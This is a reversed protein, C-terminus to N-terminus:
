ELSGNDLLHNVERPDAETTGTRSRLGQVAMLVGMGIFGGVALWLMNTGVPRESAQIAVKHESFKLAPAAPTTTAPTAAPTSTGVYHVCAAKPTCCATNKTADTANKNAWADKAAQRKTADKIHKWSDVGSNENFFGTPCAINSLGGCTNPNKQCCVDIAAQDKTCSAADTSCTTKEVKAKMMYGAPCKASACTAKATCCNEASAKANGSSKTDFYMSNTCTVATVGACSSDDKVCCAPAVGAACTSADLGTCSKILDAAVTTKKKGAPCTYLKSACTPKSFCCSKQFAAKADLTSPTGTVGYDIKTNKWGDDTGKTGTTCTETSTATKATDKLKDTGCKDVDFKCCPAASKGCSAVDSPCSKAKSLADYIYGAPCTFGRGGCTAKKTCCVTSKTEETAVTALWADKIVKAAETTAASTAYQYHNGDCAVNLGGCTKANTECCEGCSAADTRDTNCTLGTLKAKHKTGAACENGVAGLPSGFLLAIIISRQM